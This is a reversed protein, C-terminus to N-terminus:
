SWGGDSCGNEITFSLCTSCVGLSAFSWGSGSFVSGGAEEGDQWEAIWNMDLTRRRRLSTSSCMESTIM